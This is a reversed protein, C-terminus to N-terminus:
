AKQRLCLERGFYVSDKKTKGIRKPQQVVYLQYHDTVISEAISIFSGILSKLKYSSKKIVKLQDKKFFFLIKEVTKNNVRM